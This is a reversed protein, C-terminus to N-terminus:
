GTISTSTLEAATQLRRCKDCAINLQTDSPLNAKIHEMQKIPMFPKDCVGCRVMELKTKWTKMDRVSDQDATLIHGTPCVEVCANCGICTDSAENFPTRVRREVGRKTFSLASVGVLRDCVRVCLGCLICKGVDGRMAFRPKTVGLEEALAQICEAEPARAWLLELAMKRSKLVEPTDTKISLGQRIPPDCATTLWTWKGKTVEVVCLRCGGYPPLAPHHCLTPVSIGMERVVDLAWRDREVEIEKGDITTKILAM